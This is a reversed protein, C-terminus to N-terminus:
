GDQTAERKRKTAKLTVHRVELGALQGIQANRRQEGMDLPSGHVMAVVLVPSPEEDAVANLGAWMIDPFANPPAWIMLREERGDYVLCRNPKKRVSDKIVDWDDGLVLRAIQGPDPFRTLAFQSYPGIGNRARAYEKMPGDKLWVRAEERSKFRTLQGGIAPHDLWRNYVTTRERLSLGDWDMEAAQRYVEAIVDRRMEDSLESM